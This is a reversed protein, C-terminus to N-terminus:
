QLRVDYTPVWSVSGAVAVTVELSSADVTCETDDSPPPDKVTPDSLSRPSEADVTYLRRAVSPESSAATEM